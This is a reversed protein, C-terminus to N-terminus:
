NPKWIEEKTVGADVLTNKIIEVIVKSSLLVALGIIIYFFWSKLDSIEEPKGQALIFKLGVYIIALTAFIIGIYIAIDVALFIADRINKVKIPNQLTSVKQVPSSSPSPSVPVNGTGTGPRATNGSGVGPAQAYAVTGTILLSIIILCQAIYKKM